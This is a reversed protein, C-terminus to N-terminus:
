NSKVILTTNSGGFGFYNLMYFGPEKSKHQDSLGVQLEDDLAYPQAAPWQHQKLFPVMYALENSGCAGLTHGLIPKIVCTAPMNDAFVRRLGHYETEDNALSATGHLKIGQIDEARIDCNKLALHIVKEVSEGDPASATMSYTDSLTAGGVFELLNTEAKATASLAIASCAEGLVLGDKHQGFPQMLGSQSVLGLSHFGLLTTQNYFELGLVLAHQIQQSRIMKAAYLMANASSTCATNFTFVQSDPCLQQVFDALLNSSVFGELAERPASLQYALEVLFLNYSTSGIFIAASKLTEQDWGVQALCDSVVKEIAKNLRLEDSLDLSDIARYPVSLSQQEINIQLPSPKEDTNALLTSGVIYIPQLM